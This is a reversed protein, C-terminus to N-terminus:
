SQPVATVPPPGTPGPAEAQFDGKLKAIDAQLIGAFSKWDTALKELKDFENGFTKGEAVAQQLEPILALDLQVNIGKAAVAALIGEWLPKAIVMFEAFDQAGTGVIADIDGCLIQISKVVPPVDEEVDKAATLIKPLWKIGDGIWQFPKEIGNLVKKWFNM